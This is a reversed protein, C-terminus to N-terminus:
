PLESMIQEEVDRGALNVIITNFFNFNRKGVARRDVRLKVFAKNVDEEYNVRYEYEGLAIRYDKMNRAKQGNEVFQRVNISM